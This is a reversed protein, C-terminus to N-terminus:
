NATPLEPTEPETKHLHVEFPAILKKPKDSAMDPTFAPFAAGATPVKLAAADVLDDGSREVLKVDSVTGEPSLYFSIKPKFVGDLELPALERALLQGYRQLILAVANQWEAQNTISLVEATQPAAPTTTIRPGTQAVSPMTYATVALVSGLMMILRFSTRDQM